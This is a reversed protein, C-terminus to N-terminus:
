GTTILLSYWKPFLHQGIKAIKPRIQQMAERSILLRAMDTKNATRPKERNQLMWSSKSCSFRTLFPQNGALGFFPFFYNAINRRASSKVKGVM